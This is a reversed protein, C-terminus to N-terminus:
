VDYAAAYGGSIMIQCLDRGDPLVIDVLARGYKDNRGFTAEVVKGVILQEVFRQARLAAERSVQDAARLEACNFRACRCRVNWKKRFIYVGLILTDGDVARLVKAPMVKGTLAFPESNELTIASTQEEAHAVTANTASPASHAEEKPEKPAKSARPTSRPKTEKKSTSM